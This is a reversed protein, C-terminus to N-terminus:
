WLLYGIPEVSCYTYALHTFTFTNYSEELILYLLYLGKYLAESPDVSYNSPTM